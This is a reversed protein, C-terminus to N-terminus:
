QIFKTKRDNIDKIEDDIRRIEEEYAYNSDNIEKRIIREKNM